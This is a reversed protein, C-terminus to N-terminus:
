EGNYFIIKNISDKTEKEIPLPLRKEYVIGAITLASIVKPTEDDFHIDEFLLGERIKSEAPAPGGDEPAITFDTKDGLELKVDQIVSNQIEDNSGLRIEIQNIYELNTFGAFSFEQMEETLAINSAIKFNSSSSPKQASIYVYDIESTNVPEILKAKFSITVKQQGDLFVREFRNRLSASKFGSGSDKTVLSIAKKGDVLPYTVNLDNGIGTVVQWGIAGNIEESKFDADRILNRGVSTKYPYPTGAHAINNEDVRAFLKNIKRTENIFKSSKLMNLENMNKLM